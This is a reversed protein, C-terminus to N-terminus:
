HSGWTHEDFQELRMRLPQTRRRTLSCVTRSIMRDTGTTLQGCEMVAGDFDDGNHAEDDESDDEVESSPWIM